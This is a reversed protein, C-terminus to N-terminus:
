GLREILEAVRSAKDAPLVFILRFVLSAGNRVWATAVSWRVRARCQLGVPEGESEPDFAVPDILEALAHHRGITLWVTTRAVLGAQSQVLSFREGLEQVQPGVPVAIPEEDWPLRYVLHYVDDERRLAEAVRVVTDTMRRRFEAEALSPVDVSLDLRKLDTGDDRPISAAELSSRIESGRRWAKWGRIAAVFPSLLALAVAGFGAALCGRAAGTPQRHDLEPM